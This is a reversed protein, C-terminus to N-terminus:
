QSPTSTIWGESYLRNWATQIHIPKFRERKRSNWSHVVEILEQLDNGSFHIEQAAWHVTALLEMGYPTEFGEILRQVQELRQISDSSAAIVSRAEDIAGPLVYMEARRSRDGYGRIYSGDLRELAHNLNEAYPGFRHKIYNLKLPEGAEQLFYALKQMELMSLRYGPQKYTDMLTLFLARAPTLRPKKTNIQIKDVEPAGDPSLLLIHVNPIDLIAHEILPRVDDWNLGGNGCGLPPIAISNINLTQIHKVLDILGNQIDQLRSRDKWHYKTPFNIIYRPGFLNSNPVVFMQGLHVEGARCARAYSRFNEPFAQRFQLALGKGMIGVCNVTNVLAEATAELLNGHTYEIM